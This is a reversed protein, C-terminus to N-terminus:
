NEVAFVNQFYFLTTWIVNNKKFLQSVNKVIMVAFRLIDMCFTDAFHERVSM